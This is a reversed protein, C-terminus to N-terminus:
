PLITSLVYAKLAAQGATNPHTADAQFDGPQALVAFGSYHTVYAPLAAAVNGCATRYQPVTEAFANPAAETARLLPSMIAINALPRLVNIAVCLTQLLTEFAAVTVTGNSWDNIGIAIIIDERGAAAVDGSLGAIKAALTPITMELSDTYLSRGGSGFTSVGTNPLGATDLRLLMTWSLNPALAFGQTISDGYITCRRAPATPVSVTFTGDMGQMTTVYLGLTNSEAGLQPGEWIEVVSGATLTVPVLRRTGDALVIPSQSYVGDIVIGIFPQAYNDSYVGLSLQTATVSTLRLRSFANHRHHLDAYATFDTNNDWYNANVTSIVAGPGVFAALTLNGSQDSVYNEAQYLDDGFLAEAFFLMTGITGIFLSNVSQYILAGIGLTDYTAVGLSATPISGVYIGDARLSVGDGDFIITLVHALGDDATTALANGTILVGADDYRITNAISNGAATVTTRPYLNMLPTSTASAAQGFAAFVGAQGAQARVAAVVTLPKSSTAGTVRSALAHAVLYHTGAYTIGPTGNMSTASWTPRASGTGTFHALPTLARNTAVDVLAATRTVYAAAPDLWGFLSAKSTPTYPAPPALCSIAMGLPVLRSSINM